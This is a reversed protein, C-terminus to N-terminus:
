VERDDDAGPERSYDGCVDNRRREENRIQCYVTSEESTGIAAGCWGCKGEVNESM